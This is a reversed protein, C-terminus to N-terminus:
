HLHVKVPERLITKLKEPVTKRFDSLYIEHHYGANELNNDNMFENLTALTRHEESFPGEHLIQVVLGENIEYFSVSKTLPSKQMIVPRQNELDQPEIFDPMRLLLRYQWDARPIRSATELSTVNTYLTEDYWWLAELKAAVFDKGQEKSKFKIVYAATYLAQINRAFPEGSPDGKGEISLYHITPLEVLQPQSHAQYYSKYLKQLDTKEM